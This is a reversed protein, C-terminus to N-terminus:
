DGAAAKGSASANANAGTALQLSSRPVATMVQNVKEASKAYLQSVPINYVKRGDVM